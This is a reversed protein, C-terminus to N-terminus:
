HNLFKVLEKVADEVTFINENIGPYVAKLKKMLYTIQPASLGIKELQEPQAYIEKSPKDMFITGENMVIVRETLRAIDEMSHSVLIITMNSENHLKTIYGFIEDRGRPDLGATPEDLVLIQPKMAVVGAIAVRRKQGGSLEFPSKELIDEDLGVSQMASIIRRDIEDQSLGQKLLGFSIDKKVTEEFLQHEPYQFVIGVQQRLEKLNKQKTDISNIVVSGKTPKLIGNLHQILTSKGSGTHGIIGIFSGDDIKINVDHLANKEFPGGGMYTYHLNEIIIPM